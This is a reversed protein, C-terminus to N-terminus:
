KVFRKTIKVLEKHVNKKACVYGKMSGGPYWPDGNMQSSVLGAERCILDVAAVDWPTNHSFIFGDMHGLASYCASVACCQRHTVVWAKKELIQNLEKIYYRSHKWVDLHIMAESLKNKAKSKIRKGNLFVGRGKKAFFLEKQVPKYVAGMIMEKGKALAIIVGYYEIGRAFNITGDIPDIYWTYESKNKIEPLEESIINDGPYCKKIQDVLFHNVKFDTETFISHGKKWGIKQEKCFGVISM